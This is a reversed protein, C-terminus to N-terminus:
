TNVRWETSYAHYYQYIYCHCLERSVHSACACQLRCIRVMYMHVSSGVGGASHRPVRIGLCFYVTHSTKVVWVSTSLMISQSVHWLESGWFVLLYEKSSEIWAADFIRRTFLLNTHKYVWSCSYNEEIYYILADSVSFDTQKIEGCHEQRGTKGAAWMSTSETCTTFLITARSTSEKWGLWRGGAWCTLPFNLSVVPPCLTALGWLSLKWVQLLM